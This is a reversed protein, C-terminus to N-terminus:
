WLCCQLQLSHDTWTCFVTRICWALSHQRRIQKVIFLAPRAHICKSRHLGTCIARSCLMADETCQM